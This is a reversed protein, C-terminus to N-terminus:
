FSLHPSPGEVVNWLLWVFGFPVYLVNGAMAVKLRALRVDRSEVALTGCNTKKTKTKKTTRTKLRTAQKPYVKVRLQRNM